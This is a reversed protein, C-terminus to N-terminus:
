ILRRKRFWFAFGSFAVSRKEFNRKVLAFKPLLSVVTFCGFCSTALSKLSPLGIAYSQTLVNVLHHQTSVPNTTSKNFNTTNTNRTNVVEGGCVTCQNRPVGASTFNSSNDNCSCREGREARESAGGIENTRDTPDIQPGEKQTTQPTSDLKCEEGAEVQLTSLNEGGIALLEETTEENGECSNRDNNADQLISSIEFLLM